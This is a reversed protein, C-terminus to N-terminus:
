MLFKDFHVSSGLSVFYIEFISMGGCFFNLLGIICNYCVFLLCHIPWSICYLWAQCHLLRFSYFCPPTLFWSPLRIAILFSFHYLEIRDNIVTTYIPTQSLFLTSQILAHELRMHLHLCLTKKICFLYFLWSKVDSRNSNWSFFYFYLWLSWFRWLMLCYILFNFYRM